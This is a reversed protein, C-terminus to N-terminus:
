GVSTSTPAKNPAKDPAPAPMFDALNGYNVPKYTGNPIAGADPVPQSAADDFTLTIDVVGPAIPGDSLLMAYAGSPWLPTTVRSPVNSKPM